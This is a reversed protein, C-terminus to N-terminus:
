KDMYLSYISENSHEQRNPSNRYRRIFEVTNDLGYTRVYINIRNVGLGLIKAWDKGTHIEGDVNIYSTSSKYKSNDEPTVWRCNNPCYDKNSDIRDITLGDQYGNSLAWDEFSIPNNLWENCVKIGKAGYWRYAKASPNYCRTKIGNFINELKRNQWKCENFKIYNGGIGTHVCKTSMFKIHRFAIDTEWGCESCRVRFLRHRDNSKYDCEYLIDFLGIRKGICNNQNIGEM